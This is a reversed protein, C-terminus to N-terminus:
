EAENLQDGARANSPTEIEQALRLWVHAMHRLLAARPEHFGNALRLCDAAYRRYEERKGL